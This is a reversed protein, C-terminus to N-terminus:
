VAIQEEFINSKEVFVDKSFEVLLVHLHGCSFAIITAKFNLDSKLSELILSGNSLYGTLIPYM